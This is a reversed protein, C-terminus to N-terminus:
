WPEEAGNGSSGDRDWGREGTSKLELYGDGAQPGTASPVARLTYDTATAASIVLDYHATRATAPCRSPFVAPRPAGLAGGSTTGAGVYTNHVAFFREMANGFDVLVAGCDLRRTKSVHSLYSPYALAALVGVIVLAIMVEVLTFGGAGSGIAHRKGGM